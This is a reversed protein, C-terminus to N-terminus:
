IHREFSGDSNKKHQFIWMSHLINDNSPRPALDWTKNKILADYEEQVTSKWNPDSLALKPNKPIPSPTLRTVSATLNFQPKQKFIGHMSKTEMTRIPTPITQAHRQNHTPLDTQHQPSTPQLKPSIRTTPGSNPTTAQDPALPIPTPRPNALSNDTTPLTPQPPQMIQNKWNHILISNLEDNLFDYATSSPTHLKAFLFQSEFFSM